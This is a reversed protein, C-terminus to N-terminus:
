EWRFYKLSLVFCVVAVGALVLLSTNVSSLAEGLWVAKMAKVVHTVPLFNAIDQMLKPMIELPISAGTLFLMPFFVLYAIATVAKMNPALGAILFGISFISLVSFLFVAAVPLLSGVFHLNFVIKGVLALLLLGAVFAKKKGALGMTELLDDYPLPNRYLSSFLDCIEWVLAREQYATNQLQM